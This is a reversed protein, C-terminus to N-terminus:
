IKCIFIFENRNTISIGLAKYHKSQEVFLRKVDEFEQQVLFEMKQIIDMEKLGDSELKCLATIYLLHPEMYKKNYFIKEKNNIEVLNKTYKSPLDELKKKSEIIKRSLQRIENDIKLHEMKIKKSIANISLLCQTSSFFYRKDGNKISLKSAFTPAYDPSETNDSSNIIKLQEAKILNHNESLLANIKGVEALSLAIFKTILSNFANITFLCKKQFIVEGFDIFKCRILVRHPKFHVFCFRNMKKCTCEIEAMKHCGEACCKFESMDM